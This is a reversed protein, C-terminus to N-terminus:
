VVSKRDRWNADGIRTWNELGASGKILAISGDTPMGLQSACGVSAIAVVFLPLATSMFRFM